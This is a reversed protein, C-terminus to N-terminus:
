VPWKLLWMERLASPWLQAPILSCCFACHVCWHVSYDPWFLVIHIFLSRIRYFHLSTSIYWWIMLLLTDDVSCWWKWWHLIVTDDTLWTAWRCWDDTLTDVSYWLISHFVYRYWGTMLLVTMSLPLAEVVVITTLWLLFSYALTLPLMLWGSYEMVEIVSHRLCDRVVTISHHDSILYQILWVASYDRNRLVEYRRRMAIGIINRAFACVAVYRLLLGHILMASDVIFPWFLWYTTGISWWYWLLCYQISHATTVLITIISIFRGVICWFVPMVSNWHIGSHFPRLTDDCTMLLYRILTLITVPILLRLVSHMSCCCICWFLYDGDYDDDVSCYIFTFQLCTVVSVDCHHVSWIM